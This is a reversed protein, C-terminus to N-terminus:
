CTESRSVGNEFTPTPLGLNAFTENAATRTAVANAVISGFSVYGRSDALIQVDDAGVHLQLSRSPFVFGFIWRDGVYEAGHRVQYFDDWESSRPKTENFLSELGFAGEVTTRAEHVFSVNIFGPSSPGQVPRKAERNAMLRDFAGNTDGAALDTTTALFEDVVPRLFEPDDNGSTLILLAGPSGPRARLTLSLFLEPDAPPWWQVKTLAYEPSVDALSDHRFTLSAETPKGEYVVDSRGQHDPLADYITSQHWVVTTYPGCSEDGFSCGSFAVLVLPAIVTVRMQGLDHRVM